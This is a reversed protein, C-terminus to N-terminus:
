MERGTRLEPRVLYIGEHHHRSRGSQISPQSQGRNGFGAVRDLKRLAAEASPFLRFGMRPQRVRWIPLRSESPPRLAVNMKGPVQLPPVDNM